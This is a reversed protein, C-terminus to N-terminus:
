RMSLNVNMKIVLNFYERLQKRLMSQIEEFRCPKASAKLKGSKIPSIFADGDSYITLKFEAVPRTKSKTM